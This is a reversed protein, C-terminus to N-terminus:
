QKRLHLTLVYLADHQTIGLKQSITRNKKEKRKKKLGQEHLFVMKFM